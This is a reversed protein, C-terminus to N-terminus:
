RHLQCNQMNILVFFFTFWPSGEGDMLKSRRSKQVMLGTVEQFSIVWGMSPGVVCVVSLGFRSVFCGPFEITFITFIPRSIKVTKKWIFPSWRFSWGERSQPEFLTLKEPSYDVAIESYNTPPQVLGNSFYSRWFPNMKGLYPCIYYINSVM